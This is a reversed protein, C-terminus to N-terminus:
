TELTAKVITVPTLPVHQHMGQRGVPVARIKDVVDMGAIVKGFVAYGHGDPRPADLGPNDVVNIFFQATASHPDSTRAMAITGRMNRLGNDAELRIPARTPKQRLDATYGGGQIMFGDIARHFVTGDYHGDEVYRIFNAVTVPAKAADLELEIDGLTTSLRVRPPTAERAFARQPSAGLVLVTSALSAIARRRSAGARSPQCSSM